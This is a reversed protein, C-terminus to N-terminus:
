AYPEAKGHYNREMYAIGETASLTDTMGGMNDRDSQRVRRGHTRCYGDSLAPSPCQRYYPAGNECRAAPPLGYTWQVAYPCTAAKWEAVIRNVWSQADDLDGSELARRNGAYAITERTVKSDDPVDKWLM